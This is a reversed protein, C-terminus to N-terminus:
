ENYDATKLLISDTLINKTESEDKRNSRLIKYTQYGINLHRYLIGAIKKSGRYNFHTYDKNAFALEGEVWETMSGDGGMLKFLNVFGSQTKFAYRKQAMTLPVVASDTKMKMDYKSAKDATSIILIAVGPFCEKLRNVAKTMSQNYWNYNKTGYNLVNTGYHLIILDYNLKQQFSKMLSINFKSLPIGSNGRQSFNDIHVGMGDDFNFGYIPISKVKIFDVKLSKVNLSSLAITNLTNKPLLKKYLTDKGIAYSIEGNNNNASGYFLTPHYLQATFKGRNGKFKVWSKQISDNNFFVHGNIGFPRIPRKINLYSQMLWNESFEHVISSRSAASESTIAVFGVGKGGYQSQFNSRLDQVIMDGDTMSDGFYAIRVTGNQKNQLQFLKEYFSILYHNGQYNEYNEDPFVIGNYENFVVRYNTLTDEIESIQSTKESNYADILMSDILVNKINQTKESFIKKPLIGKIVLFFIASLLIILFSQFFYSKTKM